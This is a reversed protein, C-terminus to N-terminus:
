PREAALRALAFACAARSHDAGLADALSVVRAGRLRRQDAITRRALFEGEGAVLVSSCAASLRSAVREVAGALRQRQVDALFRALLEADPTTFETQDCCLMRALRDHAAARTAPRGNATNVDGAQEPLDGLTLYIDLTSAFYEAALPCYGDRFPVTHAIASLPTRRVGSYVLEGSVLREVDTRGQPLPIGSELPIIDTTTSGVDILLATGQPAMRAAWTALAHWNAAAVLLPFERAHEVDVFEGGTQWVRHPVGPAADAVAQLIRDVGEARTEFCDALEATMTVALGDIAGFETIVGGLATALQEPERWVAFPRSLSRSEGDSAKINAGGIDLGLHM